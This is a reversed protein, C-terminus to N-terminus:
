HVVSCADEDEDDVAESHLVHGSTRNAGASHVVNRRRQPKKKKLKVRECVGTTVGEDFEWKDPTDMEAALADRQTAGQCVGGNSDHIFIFCTAEQLCATRCMALDFGDGFELLRYGIRVLYLPEVDVSVVHSQVFTYRHRGAFM